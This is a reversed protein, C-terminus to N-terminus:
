LSRSVEFIANSEKFEILESITYEGSGDFYDLKDMAGNRLDTRAGSKKTSAQRSYLVVINTGSVKSVEVAGYKYKDDYDNLLKSYDVLYRDGSVPAELLVLEKADTEASKMHAWTFFLPIIIAWYEVPIFFMTHSPSKTTVGTEENLHRTRKKYNLYYGFLGTAMAAGILGITKPWENVKYYEADMIGQMALVCAVWTIGFVILTAWGYGRWIMLM